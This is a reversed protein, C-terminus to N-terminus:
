ASCCLPLRTFCIIKDERKNEALLIIKARYGSVSFCNKYSLDHSNPMQLRQWGTLMWLALLRCNGLLLYKIRKLCFISLFTTGPLHPLRRYKINEKPFAYICSPRRGPHALCRSLHSGKPPLHHHGANRHASSASGRAAPPSLHENRLATQNKYLYPIIRKIDTKWCTKILCLSSVFTRLAELPTSIPNWIQKATPVPSM